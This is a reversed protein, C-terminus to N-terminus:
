PNGVFSQLMNPTNYCLITTTSYVGLLRMNHASARIGLKALLVVISFNVRDRGRSEPCLSGHSTNM